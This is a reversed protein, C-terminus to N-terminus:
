RAGSGFLVVKTTELLITLDLFVSYNKIYYLDYRLKEHSDEISSGYRYRVQAWGSLGPRMMHRMEYFPIEQKLKEVFQPREPRPGVMSMDGKLVNVLQPLEDIRTKRMFRGVPTVRDDNTTAWKIGDKEADTRMSRFKYITFTKGALGVREQSYLAPGRSTVRVLIAFLLMLPATLILLTSAVAIDILRKLWVQITHHMPSATFILVSPRVYDTLIKGMLREYFYEGESIAVGENKLRLLADAPFVNRPNDQAVIVHDIREATVADCVDLSNGVFRVSKGSDDGTRDVTCGVFEFIMQGRSSLAERIRRAREGSGIILVRQRGFEGILRRELFRRWLVLLVFQSSLAITFFWRGMLGPFLFLVPAVLILALGQCRLVSTILESTHRQQWFSYMENLYMSVALLLTYMSVSVWPYARAEGFFAAEAYRAIEFSALVLMADVVVPILLFFDAGLRTRSAAQRPLPKKLAVPTPMAGTPTALMPPKDM